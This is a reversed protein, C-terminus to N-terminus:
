IKLKLIKKKELNLIELNKKKEIELFNKFNKKKGFIEKTLVKEVVVLEDDAFNKLKINQERLTVLEKTLNEIQTILNKIKKKESNSIHISSLIKRYQYNLTELNESKLNKEFNEIKRNKEFNEMKSNKEFNEMKSNKQNQLIENKLIEGIKQNKPNKLIERNKKDFNFNFNKEFSKNLNKDFSKDSIRYRLGSNKRETLFKNKEFKEFKEKKGFDSFNEKKEFSLNRFNGLNEIKGIKKIKRFNEFKGNQIKRNKKGFSPSKKNGSFFDIKRFKGIEPTKCIRKNKKISFKLPKTSFDRKEFKKIKKFNENKKKKYFFKENKPNKKFNRSIQYSFKKSKIKIPSKEIKVPLYRESLNKISRRSLRKENYLQLEKKM